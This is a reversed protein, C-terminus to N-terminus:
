IWKQNEEEYKEIIIEIISLTDDYSYFFNYDEPHSFNIYYDGLVAFINKKWNLLKEIGDLDIDEECVWTLVSEFEQMCAIRYSCNFIEIPAKACYEKEIEKIDKEIRRLLKEKLTEM